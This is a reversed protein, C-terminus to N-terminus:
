ITSAVHRYSRHKSPKTNERIKHWKLLDGCFHWITITSHRSYVQFSPLIGHHALLQLNLSPVERVYTQLVAMIRDDKTQQQKEWDMWFVPLFNHWNTGVSQTIESAMHLWWGTTWKFSDLRCCIHKLDTIFYNLHKYYLNGNVTRM